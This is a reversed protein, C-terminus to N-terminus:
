KKHRIGAIQVFVTRREVANGSADLEYGNLWVWGTTATWDHVRIVRFVVQRGGGFQVSAQPGLFVVEGPRPIM